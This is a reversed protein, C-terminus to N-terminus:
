KLKRIKEAIEANYKTRTGIAGAGGTQVNNRGWDDGDHGNNKVFWIHDKGIVFWRGGGYIDPPYFPDDISEGELRFDGEPYEAGEFAAVVENLTQQKEQRAQRKIEAEKRAEEREALIKKAIERQEHTAIKEAIAKLTDEARPAITWGKYNDGEFDCGGEMDEDSRIYETYQKIKAWVDRPLEATLAYLNFDEGKTVQTIISGTLTKVVWSGRAEREQREAKAKAMITDIETINADYSEHSLGSVPRGNKMYTAYRLKRGQETTNEKTTYSGSFYQRAFQEIKNQLETDM